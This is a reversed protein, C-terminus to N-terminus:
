GANCFSHASFLFLAGNPLWTELRLDVFCAPGVSYTPINAAGTAPRPRENLTDFDITM